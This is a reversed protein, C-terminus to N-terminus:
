QPNSPQASPPTVPASDASPRQGVPNGIVDGSVIMEVRRNLKRGAATKNDAVPESKGLGRTVTNNISVGSNVLYDRVSASRKESLRQNYEDGGVSDAHGEIELKLNPYALVIGSIRALRERAAPKLSYQGTDFLVDPMNVILGRPSDRTQLVQNLQALLRARMEEKQRVAEQRQRESEEAATQAKQQEARAAAQQQEAEARGKEAAERDAEAQARRRTDEESQASAANAESEAQARRRADEESQAQAARADTEAREREEQMRRQDAALHEKQKQRLTM